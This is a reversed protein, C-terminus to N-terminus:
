RVGEAGRVFEGLSVGCGEFVAFNAAVDVFDGQSRRCWAWARPM